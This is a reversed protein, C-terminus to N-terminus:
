DKEAHEALWAEAADLDRFVTMEQPLAVGRSAYMRAIGFSLDAPAVIAILADGRAPFRARIELLQEIFKWDFQAMDTESLDWITPVDPPFEAASVIKRLQAEFETTTFAGKYRGYLINKQANYNISLQM